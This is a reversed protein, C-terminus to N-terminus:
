PDTDEGSCMGSNFITVQQYYNGALNHISQVVGALDSPRARGASRAAGEKVVDIDARRRM